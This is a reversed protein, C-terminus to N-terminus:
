LLNHYVYKLVEFYYNNIHMIKPNETRTFKEPQFDLIEGTFHIQLLCSKPNIIWQILLNIGICTYSKITYVNM